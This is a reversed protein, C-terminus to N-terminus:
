VRGTLDLEQSDELVDILWQLHPPTYMRVYIGWWVVAILTGFVPHAAMSIGKAVRIHAM